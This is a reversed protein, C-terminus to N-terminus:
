RSFMLAYKVRGARGIIHLLCNYFLTDLRCGATKIRLALQLAEEFREAKALSGMGTTFTVVNPPCGQVTMEDLLENVKRFDNRCCYFQMITSYSIVCLHCGHGRMEQVTWRAEEVRNIKCWDPIFINFTYADPAIHSKLLLFIERAELIDVMMDYAQRSRNYGPRSAAWRFAGLPNGTMRSGHLLKEALGHSLSSFTLTLDDWSKMRDPSALLNWLCLLLPVKLTHVSFSVYYQHNSCSRLVELATRYGWENDYWSVLKVFNGNLAIGAKADFISSENSPVQRSDGIFDTSVVDEEIYGLIGKLKGESEARPRFSGIALLCEM